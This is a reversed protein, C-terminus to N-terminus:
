GAYFHQCHIDSLRPTVPTNNTITIFIDSTNNFFTISRSRLSGDGLNVRTDDHRRTRNQHGAQIVQGAIVRLVLIVQCIYKEYRIFLANLGTSNNGRDRCIQLPCVIPNLQCFQFPSISHFLGCLQHFCTNLQSIGLTNVYASLYHRAAIHSDIHINHKLTVDSQTITNLDTRTTHKFVALQCGSCPNMSVTHKLTHTAQAGTIDPRKCTHTGSCFQHLTALYAIKDLHFVGREALVALGAM